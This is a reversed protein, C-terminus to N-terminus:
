KVGGIQADATDHKRAFTAPDLYISIRPLITGSYFVRRYGAAEYQRITQEEWMRGHDIIVVPIGRAPVGDYIGSGDWRAFTTDPLSIQEQRRAALFELVPETGYQRVPTGPPTVIALARAAPAFDSLLRSKGSLHRSSLSIAVGLAAIGLLLNFLFSRARPPPGATLALALLAALAPWLNLNYHPYNRALRPLFEAIAFLLLSGILLKHQRPAHRQLLLAAGAALALLILMATWPSRVLEGLLVGRPRPGSAAYKTLKGVTNAYIVGLRWDLWSALMALVAAAGALAAPLAKRPPLDRRRQWLLALLPLAIVVGNQKCLLACCACAGAAAAHAVTLRPGTACLLTLLSFLVVGHELTLHNGGNDISYILFLVALMLAVPLDRTLRWGLLFTVAANLLQWGLPIAVALAVRDIPLLMPIADLLDMLPPYISVYDLYPRLGAAVYSSRLLFFGGDHDWPGCLIDILAIVVLLGAAFALLLITTRYWPSEGRVGREGDMLGNRDPM